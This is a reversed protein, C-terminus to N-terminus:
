CSARAEVGAHKRAGASSWCVRRGGCSFPAAQSRRHKSCDCDRFCCCCCCPAPAPCCPPSAPDGGPVGGGGGGPSGGGPLPVAAPPPPPPPPSVSRMQPGTSRVTSAMSWTPPCRALHPLLCHTSIHPLIPNDLQYTHTDKRWVHTRTKLHVLHAPLSPLPYALLVDPQSHSVTTNIYGHGHERPQPHNYKLRSVRRKSCQKRRLPPPLVGMPWSWRTNYHIRHTICAIFARFTNLYM